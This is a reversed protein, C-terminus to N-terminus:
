AAAETARGAPAAQAAGARPVLAFGEAGPPAWDLGAETAMRWVAMRHEAPIVGRAIWNSVASPIVGRAAAVKTPGGLKAILDSNSLM